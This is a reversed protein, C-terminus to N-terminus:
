LIMLRSKVQSNNESGLLVGLFRFPTKEGVHISGTSTSNERKGYEGDQKHAGRKLRALLALYSKKGM